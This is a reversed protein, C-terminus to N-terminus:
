GVLNTKMYEHALAFVNCTLKQALLFFSNERRTVNPGDVVFLTFRACHEYM